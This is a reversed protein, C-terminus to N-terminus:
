GDGYGGTVWECTRTKVNKLKIINIFRLRRIEETELLEGKENYPVDNLHHFVYFEDNSFSIGEREKQLSIGGLKLKAIKGKVFNIYDMNSISSRSFVGRKELMDWETTAMVESFENLKEILDDNRSVYIAKSYRIHIHTIREKSTSTDYVCNINMPIIPVGTKQAIDIFGWNLPLHLKNPSLNWATEPYILISHGKLLLSIMDLKAQMRKEQNRKDKTVLVLGTNYQALLLGRSIEASHVVIVHKPCDPIWVFGDLIGQHNGAFIVPGSPINEIGEINKEIYGGALIKTLKIVIKETIGKLKPAITTAGKTTMQLKRKLCYRYLTDYYEDRDKETLEREEKINLIRFNERTVKRKKKPMLYSDFM